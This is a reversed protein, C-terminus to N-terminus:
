GIYLQLGRRAVDRKKEDNYLVEQALPPFPPPYACSRPQLSPCSRAYHGHLVGQEDRAVQKGGAQTGKGRGRISVSAVGSFRSARFLGQPPIVREEREGAAM